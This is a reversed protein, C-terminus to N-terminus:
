YEYGILTVVNNATATGVQSIGFQMNGSLELGDPIEAFGSDTINAVALPTGAAATAILPSTASVAGSATMRLNVVVGQGAAGANRTTVLLAQIRFRKGATVGFTTAASGSNGDSIPTLTVLAETTAATFAASYIKIVRGCDKFEQVMLAVTGQTGKVQTDGVLGSTGGVQTTAQSAPFNTVSVSGAVTQTAPFNNVGVAQVAPFNSVGVAVPTPSKINVDLASNTSTLPNGASDQIPVAMNIVKLAGGFFGVYLQATDTAFYFEGDGLSPM